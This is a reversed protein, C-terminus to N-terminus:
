MQFPSLIQGCKKLHVIEKKKHSYKKKSYSGEKLIDTKQELSSHVCPEDATALVLTLSHVVTGGLSFSGVVASLQWPEGPASFFLGFFKLVSPSHVRPVLM